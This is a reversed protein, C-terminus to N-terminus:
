RASQSKPLRPAHKLLCASTLRDVRKKAALLQCEGDRLLLCGKGMIAPKHIEKFAKGPIVIFYKDFLAHPIHRPLKLM